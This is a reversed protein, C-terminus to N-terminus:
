EHEWNLDPREKKLIKMFKDYLGMSKLKKLFARPYPISEEYSRRPDILMLTGDYEIFLHPFRLELKKFGLMKMHDVLDAVDIVFSKRIGYALLYDYVNTGGVYERIMYNKGLKYARPFHPSGEVSKLIDFEARCSDSSRFIKIVRGDPMLYVEGSHGKGLFTFQKLDIPLLKSDTNKESLKAGGKNKHLIFVFSKM